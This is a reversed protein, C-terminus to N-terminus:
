FYYLINRKNLYFLNNYNLLIKYQKIIIYTLILNFHM